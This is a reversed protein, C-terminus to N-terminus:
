MWAKMAKPNIVESFRVSIYDHAVQLFSNVEDWSSCIGAAIFQLRIVSQPVVEPGEAVFGMEARIKLMPGQPPPTSTIGEVWMNTWGFMASSSPDNPNFWSLVNSLRLKGTEPEPVMPLIDDYFLEVAVPDPVASGHASHWDHLCRLYKDFSAKLADFGPYNAPSGPTSRRRWNYGVLNDQLQLILTEDASKLFWRDVFPEISLPPLGRLQLIEPGDSPMSREIGPLDSKVQDHFDRLNYGTASQKGALSVSM